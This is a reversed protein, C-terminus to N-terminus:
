SFSGTDLRVEISTIKEGSGIDTATGTLTPTSDNTPSVAVNLSLSPVHNTGSQAANANGLADTVTLDAIDVTVPDEAAPASSATLDITSDSPNSCAWASVAVSDVSFDGSDISSCLV